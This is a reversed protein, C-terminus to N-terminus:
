IYYEFIPKSPSSGEVDLVPIQHEIWQAILRNLKLKFLKMFMLDQYRKSFGASTKQVRSNEWDQSIETVKNLLRIRENSDLWLKSDLQIKLQEWSNNRPWIKYSTLPISTLNIIQNISLALSNELWIIKLQFRFDSSKGKVQYVM